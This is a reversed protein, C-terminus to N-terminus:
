KKYRDSLNESQDGSEGNKKRRYANTLADTGKYVVKRIAYRIAYAALVLLVVVIWFEVGM